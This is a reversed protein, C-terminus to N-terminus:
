NTPLLAGPLQVKNISVVPIRVHPQLLRSSVAVGASWRWSYSPNLTHDLSVSSRRWRPINRLCLDTFLDDGWSWWSKGLPGGSLFLIPAALIPVCLVSTWPAPYTFMPPFDWVFQNHNSYVTPRTTYLLVSRALIFAHSYFSFNSASSKEGLQPNQRPVTALKLGNDVALPVHECRIVRFTWIKSMQISTEPSSM